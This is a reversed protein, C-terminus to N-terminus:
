PYLTNFKEIAALQSETYNYGEAPAINLLINSKVQYTIILPVTDYFIVANNLGMSGNNGFAWVRQLDLDYIKKLVTIKETSLVCNVANTKNVKKSEIHAGTLIIKIQYIAPYNNPFIKSFNKSYGDRAGSTYALVFSGNVSKTKNLDSGYLFYYFNENTISIGMFCIPLILILLYLYKLRDIGYISEELVFLVFSYAFFLGINFLFVYLFSKWLLYYFAYSLRENKTKNKEHVFRRSELNPTDLLLVNFDKIALLQEESYEFSPVPQIEKLVHSNQGAIITLPVGDCMQMSKLFVGIDRYEVDVQYLKKLADLKAETIICYFYKFRDGQETDSYFVKQYVAKKERHFSGLIIDPVSIKNNGSLPKSFSFYGQNEDFLNNQFDYKRKFFEKHKRRYLFFLILFVVFVECVILLVLVERYLKVQFLFVFFGIIFIATLVSPVIAFRAQLSFLSKRERKLSEGYKEHRNM